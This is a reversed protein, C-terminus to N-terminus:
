SGSFAGPCCDIDTSYLGYWLGTLVHGLPQAVVADYTASDYVSGGHFIVSEKM